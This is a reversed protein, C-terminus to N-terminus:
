AKIGFLQILNKFYEFAEDYSVSEFIMEKYEGIFKDVFLFFVKGTKHEEIKFYLYDNIKEPEFIKIGHFKLDNQINEFFGCLEKSLSHSIGCNIKFFDHEM